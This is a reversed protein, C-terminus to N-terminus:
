RWEALLLRNPGAIITGDINLAYSGRLTRNSCRAPSSSGADGFRDSQANGPQGLLVACGAILLGSQQSHWGCALSADHWM